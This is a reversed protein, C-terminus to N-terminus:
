LRLRRALLPGDGEGSRLPSLHRRSPGAEFFVFDSARYIVAGPAAHAPDVVAGGRKRKAPGADMLSLSLPLCPNLSSTFVFCGVLYLVRLRVSLCAVRLHVM